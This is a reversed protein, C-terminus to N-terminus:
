GYMCMGSGIGTQRRSFVTLSPPVPDLKVMLCKGATRSRHVPIGTLSGPPQNLLAPFAPSCVLAEVARTEHSLGYLFRIEFGFEVSFRENSAEFIEARQSGGADGWVGM